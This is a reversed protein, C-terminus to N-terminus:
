SYRSHPARGSASSNRPLIHANCPSSETRAPFQTAPPHPVQAGPAASLRSSCAELVAPRTEQGSKPCQALIM